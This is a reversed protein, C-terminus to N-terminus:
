FLVRDPPRNKDWKLDSLVSSKVGIFFYYASQVGFPTWNFNFRWSDLDRSFNLRTFTFANNKIDYGSSFGVKWKPSLEVDGSFMMTHNGIGSTLGTNTYNMIYILNLTWPIKANYLKEVKTENSNRNSGLGTAFGNTTNMNQGFVDPTNQAGNGSQTDKKKNKDEDKEKEFDKSSISYNASVGVNTVRFIGSNFQNIRQGKSNIRYPDLTANVNLALKDSFLRTGASASVPSWRLSDAAFNYSTSFNLNNLITIKKDEEESDPDKPAVKAEL